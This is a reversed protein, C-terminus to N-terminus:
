AVSNGLKLGFGLPRYTYYSVPGGAYNARAKLNRVHKRYGRTGRKVRPTWALRERWALIDRMLEDPVLFGGEDADM